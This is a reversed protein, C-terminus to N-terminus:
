TLNVTIDGYIPLTGLHNFILDSSVGVGAFPGPIFQVFGDLGGVLSGDVSASGYSSNAGALTASNAIIGGNSVDNYLSGTSAAVVVGTGVGSGNVTVDAALQYTYIVPNDVDSTDIYYYKSGESVTSSPTAGAIDVNASASSASGTGYYGINDSGILSRGNLKVDVVYDIGPVNDVLAIVENVRVILNDWNWVNPDLYNKLAAVVDTTVAGPVFGDLVVADVSVDVEVLEASMVDVSVGSPIRDTLSTSVDSLQSASVTIDSVVDDVDSMSNAIAVLLYGPHTSFSESLRDRDRYRRKNYVKVRNAFSKNSLIYSSIQSPTVSAQSYSALVNIARTFFENDTEEDTGGSPNNAFSASVFFTANSLLTLTSGAAARNYGSGSTSATVTANGSLSGALTFDEDLEYTFSLGDVSSYYLFNTGAPLTRGGPFDDSDSFTITVTATARQGDDREIGFLKLLTEVTSGPLRNVAGSLESSRYAIAEALVTEIQGARPQWGPLLSNAYALISSLSSVPSEDYITLDVYPTFDPSPM